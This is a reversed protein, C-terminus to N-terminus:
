TNIVIIRLNLLPNPINYLSPGPVRPLRNGKLYAYFFALVDPDPYLGTKYLLDM